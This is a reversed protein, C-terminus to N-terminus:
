HEYCPGGDLLNRGYTGPPTRDDRNHDVLCSIEGDPWCSWCEPPTQGCIWPHSHPTYTPATSSITHTTHTSTASPTYHHHIHNTTSKTYTHNSSPLNNTRLQALTRRTLHPLIEESSIIHPQPTRLIKINGRTALHM